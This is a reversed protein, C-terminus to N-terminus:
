SYVTRLLGTQTYVPVQYHCTDSFVIILIYALMLQACLVWEGNTDGSTYHEGDMGRMKDCPSFHHLSNDVKRIALRSVHQSYEATVRFTIVETALVLIVVM